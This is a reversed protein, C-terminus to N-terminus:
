EGGAESLRRMSKQAWELRGEEGPVGVAANIYDSWLPPAAGPAFKGVASALAYRTAILDDESATPDELSLRFYAAADEYRKLDYLVRGYLYYALYTHKTRPWAPVSALVEAADDSRELRDHLLRARRYEAEPLGPALECFRTAEDLAYMWKKQRELRRSSQQAEFARTCMDMQFRAEKQWREPNEESSAARSARVAAGYALSLDHWVLGSALRTWMQAQDARDHGVDAAAGESAEWEDAGAYELRLMLPQGDRNVVVSYAQGQPVTWLGYFADNDERIQVANVSLLLDGEHMGALAAPSGPPVGTVRLHEFGCGLTAPFGGVRATARVLCLLDDAAINEPNRQLVEQLVAIADDDLADGHLARALLLRLDNDGPFQDLLTTCLNVAAQFRGADIEGEAGARLRSKIRVPAEHAMETVRGDKIRLTVLAPYYVELITDETALQCIPEDLALWRRMTDPTPPTEPHVAITRIRDTGPFLDIAIDRADFADGAFHHTEGECRDAGLVRCADALSSEGPRLGAFDGAHLPPALLAGLFLAAAAATRALM